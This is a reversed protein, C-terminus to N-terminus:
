PFPSHCKNIGAVADSLQMATLVLHHIAITAAAVVVILADRYLITLAIGGFIHFHMEIEGGRAQIMIASFLMLLVASICGAARTGRFMAYNGLALAGTILSAIVSFTMTDHGLPILFAVFPVHALLVTLMQKDSKLLQATTNISKSTVVQGSM